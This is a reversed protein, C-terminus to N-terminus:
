MAITSTQSPDNDMLFIIRQNFKPGTKAFNINFHTHIFNAFYSGNMKGYTEKLIVGRGYAVAVLIHVNRGGERAIKQLSKYAKAQKKGFERKQRKKRSM